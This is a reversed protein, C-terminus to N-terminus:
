MGFPAPSSRRCPADSACRRGRRRRRDATGTRRPSARCARRASPRRRGARSRAPRGSGRAGVDVHPRREDGAAVAIRWPRDRVASRVISRAGVCRRGARRGRAAATAPRAHPEVQEVAACRAREHRRRGSRSGRGARALRGSVMSPRLTGTPPAGCSAVINSSSAACSGLARDQKAEPSLTPAEGAFEPRSAPCAPSRRRSRRPGRHWRTRCGRTRSRRRGGALLVLRPRM